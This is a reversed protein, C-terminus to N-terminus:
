HTAMDTTMVAEHDLLVKVLHSVLHSWSHSQQEKHAKLLSVVVSLRIKQESSLLGSTDGQGQGTLTVERLQQLCVDPSLSSERHGSGEVTCQLM